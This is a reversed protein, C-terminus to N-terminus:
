MGDDTEDYADWFGEGEGGMDSNDGLDSLPPGQTVATVPTVPTPTVQAPSLPSLPSLPIYGTTVKDILQRDYMRKLQQKVTDEPLGMHACLKKPWIPAFTELQKIYEAEVVTLQPGDAIGGLVWIGMEPVWTIVRECEEKIDRGTVFIRGECKGRPRSLIITTDVSGTLGSSGGISELIDECDGRQNTHTVVLSALGPTDDCLRKLPELSSYDDAYVQGTGKKPRIKALTDVIIFRCAPNQELYEALKEEGGDGFRPWALEIDYADTAASGALLKESRSQIRVWNDELALYLVDRQECQVNGVATGGKSVALGVAHVLWSKSIKPPGAILNVGESIIGEVVYNPPPLKLAMVETLKM